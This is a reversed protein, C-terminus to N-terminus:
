RLVTLYLIGLLIRVVRLNSGCEIEVADQAVGFEVINRRCWDIEVSQGDKIKELNMATSCQRTPETDIQTAPAATSEYCGEKECEPQRHESRRRACLGDVRAHGAGGASRM